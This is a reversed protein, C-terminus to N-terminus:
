TPALITRLLARLHSLGLPKEVVARAGAQKARAHVEPSCFASIVIAPIPSDTQGLWSLVELGSRGPMRVDTVILDIDPPDKGERRALADRLAHELGLGSGVEVVDCGERQMAESLLARLDADDEAM